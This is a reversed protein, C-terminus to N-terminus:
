IYDSIIGEFKKYIKIAIILFIVSLTVILILLSLNPKEGFMLLSQFASTFHYIPNIQFYTQYRDPIISLPYVIPTLWFILNLLIPIAHCLDKIFVSLISLIIGISASFFILIIIYPILYLLNIGIGHNFYLFSILVLILLVVFDVFSSLISTFFLTYKPFKIRKILNKNESLINMINLTLNSFLSWCLIGALLYIIYANENEINSFKLKMVNSLILAYITVQVLPNIIIWLYGLNNNSFRSKLTNFYFIFIFNKYSILEYFFKKM